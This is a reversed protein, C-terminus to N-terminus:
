LSYETNGLRIFIFTNFKRKINFSIWQHHSIIDNNNNKSTRTGAPKESSKKTTEKIILYQKYITMTERLPLCSNTSTIILNKTTNQTTYIHVVLNGRLKSLCKFDLKSGLSAKKQKNNLQGAYFLGSLLFSQIQHESMLIQKTKRAKIRQLLILQFKLTNRGTPVNITMLLVMSHPSPTTYNFMKRFNICINYVFTHLPIEM